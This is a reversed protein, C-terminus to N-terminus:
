DGSGTFIVDATAAIRERTDETMGEAASNKRDFLLEANGARGAVVKAVETMLLRANPKTNDLIGIVRIGSVDTKAEADVQAHRGVPSFATVARTM